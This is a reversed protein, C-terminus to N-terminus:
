IKLQKDFHIILDINSIFNVQEDYKVRIVYGTGVRRISINEVSPNEIDDIEFQRRLKNEIIIKGNFDLSKKPISELANVAHAVNYYRIYVPIVRMVMIAAIVVITATVLLGILTMGKQKKQM